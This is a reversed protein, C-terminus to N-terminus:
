ANSKITQVNIKNTELLMIIDEQDYLLINGVRTYPLTGNVRLNHLTGTSINLMERVQYSKLYKKIKQAKPGTILNTIDDLLELKFDRLDDTTIFTSPMLFSNHYDYSDLKFIPLISHDFAKANATLFWEVM